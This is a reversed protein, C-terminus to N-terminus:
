RGGRGLDTKARLFSFRIRAKGNARACLSRNHGVTDTDESM